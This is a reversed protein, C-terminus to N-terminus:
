NNIRMLIKKMTGGFGNPTDFRVNHPAWIKNIKREYVNPNPYLPHRDLQKPGFLNHVVFEQNQIARETKINAPAVPLSRRSFPGTFIGPFYESAILVTDTDSDLVTSDEALSQSLLLSGIVAVILLSNLGLSIRASVLFSSGM